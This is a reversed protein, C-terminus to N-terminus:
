VCDENSNIKRQNPDHNQKSKFYWLVCPCLIFVTWWIYVGTRALFSNPRFNLMAKIRQHWLPLRFLALSGSNISPSTNPCLLCHPQLLGTGAPWWSGALPGSFWVWSHAASALSHSDTYAWMKQGSLCLISSSSSLYGMAQTSTTVDCTIECSLKTNKNQRPEKLPHNKFPSHSAM